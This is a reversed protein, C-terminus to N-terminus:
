VKLFNGSRQRKLFLASPLCLHESDSDSPQFSVPSPVAHLPPCVAVKLAAVEGGLGTLRTGHTLSLGDILNHILQADATPETHGLCYRFMLMFHLRTYM